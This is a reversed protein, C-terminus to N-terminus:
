PSDAGPRPTEADKRHEPSPEVLIMLPMRPPDRRAAFWVQWDARMAPEAEWGFSTWWDTKLGAQFAALLTPIPSSEQAVSLRQGQRDLLWGTLADCRAYFREVDAPLGRATLLGGPSPLPGSLRRRYMLRRAPPEAQLALGEDIALPPTARRYADALLAHTLEHPLTSGLLWPDAQFVELKRLIVRDGRLRTRSVAFTIGSTATSDHLDQQTAHVRVELRPEWTEATPVGLWNALRPYHYELAEAVRDAILDNRAYVDFHPTQQQKWVNPLAIIWLGERRHTPTTKYLGRLRRVARRRLGAITERRRDAPPLKWPTGLAEAYTRGADLLQGAREALLGGIILSIAPEDTKRLVDIARALLRGAANPDMAQSFDSESLALALSLAWRTHVDAPADPRGALVQEYLAFAENFNRALYHDDATGLWAAREPAALTQALDPRLSKLAKARDLAAEFLELRLLQDLQDACSDADTHAARIQRRLALAQEHDPEAALIAQLATLCADYRHQALWNRALALHLTVYEHRVGPDDPSKKLAAQAHRVAAEPTGARLLGTLEARLAPNGPPDVTQGLVAPALLIVTALRALKHLRPRVTFHPNRAIQPSQDATMRAVRDQTPAPATADTAPLNM